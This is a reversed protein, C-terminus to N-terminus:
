QKFAREPRLMRLDHRARQVGDQRVHGRVLYVPKFVFRVGKGSGTIDSRGVPRDTDVLPTRLCAAFHQENM